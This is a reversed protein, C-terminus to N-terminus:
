EKKQKPPNFACYIIMGIFIWWFFVSLLYAGNHVGRSKRATRVYIEGTLFGLVLYGAAWLAISGMM